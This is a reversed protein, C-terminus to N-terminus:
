GSMGCIQQDAEAEEAMMCIEDVTNNAFRPSAADYCPADAIFECSIMCEGVALACGAELCSNCDFNPGVDPCSISDFEESPPATMNGPGLAGGPGGMDDEEDDMVGMMDDEKDDKQASVADLTVLGALASILLMRAFKM